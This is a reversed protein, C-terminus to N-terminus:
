QKPASTMAGSSMHDDKKSTMKDTKKAAMKDDKKMAGSTMAGSSMHDDKKTTMAGSSMHDDKKMMGSTAATQALAGTAAFAVAVTALALTRFTTM